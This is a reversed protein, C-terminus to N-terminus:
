GTSLSLRKPDMFCKDALERQTVHDKEYLKNLIRPQGPSLGLDQFYPHLIQRRPIDFWLVSM